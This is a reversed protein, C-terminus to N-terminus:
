RVLRLVRGIWFDGLRPEFVGLSRATGMDLSSKTPKWVAEAKLLRIDPRVPTPKSAALHCNLRRGHWRLSDHTKKGSTSRMSGAEALKRKM